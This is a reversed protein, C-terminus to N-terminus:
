RRAASRAARQGADVRDNRDRARIARCDRSLIAYWTGVIGAEIRACGTEKEDAERGKELHM